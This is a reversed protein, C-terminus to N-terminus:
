AEGLTARITKHLARILAFVEELQEDSLHTLEFDLGAVSVFRGSQARAGALGNKEHAQRGAEGEPRAAATPEAETAPLGGAADESSPAVAYGGNTPTLVGAYELLDVLVRLSSRQAQAAGAERGLAAILEDGSVPRGAARARQSALAGFWSDALPGRLHERAEEADWESARVFRSCAETPLYYGRGKAKELLGAEALFAIYASVTTAHMGAVAAVDRYMVRRRGDGSAAHVARLVIVMNDIKGAPPLRRRQSGKTRRQASRSTAVDQEAM